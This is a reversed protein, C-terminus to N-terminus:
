AVVQREERLCRVALMHALRLPEPNKQRSVQRVIRESSQLSVRHGPSVFLPRRASGSCVTVGRREGDAVVFGNECTGYLRSKAVGITPMDCVVGAHSALGCRVPHLIGQGDLLVVSPPTAVMELLQQVFPVERYSFYTPIFPFRTSLSVTREEVVEGTRADLAIYAGFAHAFEDQPYAVDVGAIVDLSGYDDEVCVKQSLRQQERRLQRLPFETAFENFFVKPFDVVKGDRVRVHDAALRRVKDQIGLGFGGLRGDSHVVKFCPMGEPDPNQNMMRGVARAAVRDGLAEAVAGYSTVHGAPVQRILNYTYEFLDM